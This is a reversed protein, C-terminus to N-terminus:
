LHYKEEEKEKIKMVASTMSLIYPRNEKIPITLNYYSVLLLTKEDVRPAETVLLLHGPLNDLLPWFLFM